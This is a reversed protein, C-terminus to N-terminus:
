CALMGAPLVVLVRHTRFSHPTTFMSPPPHIILTLSLWVHTYDHHVTLIIFSDFFLWFDSCWILGDCVHNLASFMVWNTSHKGAMREAQPKSVLVACLQWPAAQVYNWCKASPTLLEPEDKAVTCLLNLAGGLADTGPEWRQGREASGWIGQQRWPTWVRVTREFYAGLFRLKWVSDRGNGNRPECSGILIWGAWGFGENKHWCINIGPNAQGNNKECSNYFHHASQTSSPSHRSDTKGARCGSNSWLTM